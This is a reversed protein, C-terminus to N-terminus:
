GVGTSAEVRRPQAEPETRGAKRSLFRPKLKHVLAPVLTLAVLSAVVITLPVLLGLYIHILFGTLVLCSYGLAISTAV